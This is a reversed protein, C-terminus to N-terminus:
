YMGEIFLVVMKKIEDFVMNSVNPFLFVMLFLVLYGVLVIAGPICFYLGFLIVKSVDGTLYGLSFGLLFLM